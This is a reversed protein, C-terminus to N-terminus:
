QWYGDPLIRNVLGLGLVDLPATGWSCREWMRWGRLEVNTPICGKLKTSNVVRKVVQPPHSPSDVYGSQRRRSISVAALWSGIGSNSNSGPFSRHWNCGTICWLKRHYGAQVYEMVHTWTMFTGGM